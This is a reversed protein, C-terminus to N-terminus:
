RGFLFDGTIEKAQEKTFGYENKLYEMVETQLSIEFMYFIGAQRCYNSRPNLLVFMKECMIELDNNPDNKEFMDGFIDSFLKNDMNKIINYWIYTEEVMTRATNVQTKSSANINFGKEHVRFGILEEEIVHIENNLLLNIWTWYDPLQVFYKGFNEDLMRLYIDTYTLLSPHALCNGNEYFYRIWKEKSMNLQGFESAKMETGVDDISKVGTFCASCDLHTEMYLVQKYIKDLEWVDDSHMVAIYKGKAKKVFQAYQLSSSNKEFLILEKIRDKYKLIKEVTDDTSADDAVLLEINPYSQNLVSEIAEEVYKGHNYAPLVVSVLPLKRDESKRTTKKIRVNEEWSADEDTFIYVSKDMTLIDLKLKERGAVDALEKICQEVNWFIAIGDKKIIRKVEMLLDKTKGLEDLSDSCIIYDLSHEQVNTTYDEERQYQVLYNNSHIWHEIFRAPKIHLIKENENAKDLGLKTFLKLLYSYEIFENSNFKCYEYFSAILVDMCEVFLDLSSAINDVNELLVKSDNCRICLSALTSFFEEYEKYIIKPVIIEIEKITKELTDLNKKYSEVEAEGRQLLGFMDYAYKKISKLYNIKEM